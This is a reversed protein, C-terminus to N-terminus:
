QPEEVVNQHDSPPLNEEFIPSSKASARSENSKALVNIQPQQRHFTILQWLYSNLRGINQGVERTVTVMEERHWLKHSQIRKNPQFNLTQLEEIKEPHERVKKQLTFIACHVCEYDDHEVSMKGKKPSEPLHYDFVIGQGFIWFLFM